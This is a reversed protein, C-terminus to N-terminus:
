NRRSESIVVEARIRRLGEGRPPEYGCRPCHKAHESIRKGCEPCPLLAM